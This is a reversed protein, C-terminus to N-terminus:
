CRSWHSRLLTPPRGILTSSVAQHPQGPQSGHPGPGGAPGAQHRSLQQDEDDGPLEDQEESPSNPRVLM